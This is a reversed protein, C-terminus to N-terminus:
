SDRRRGERQRKHEGSRALLGADAPRVPPHQLGPDGDRDDRAHEEVHEELFVVDGAEQATRHFSPSAHRFSGGDKGCLAGGGIPM